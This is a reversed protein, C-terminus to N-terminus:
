KKKLNDSPRYSYIIKVSRTSTTEITEITEEPKNEIFNGDDDFQSIFPDDAENFDEEQWKYKTNKIESEKFIFAFVLGVFFGSLHGEWSIKSDIPFVYWLLGGYMFVVALSLATLQYHKSLIGKFFLFAALMYVVGSAGIHNAPRGIIWTCIGTILLGFILVRWRISRYFYFLAASLAFLPVSNNFLHDLSGHIFPGFLVGRLGVITNPYIGFDNLNFGFRTEVWYVIWIILVFLLPYGVVGNSFYIGKNPKM